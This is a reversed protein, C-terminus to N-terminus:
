QANCTGREIHGSGAIVTMASQSPHPELGDPASYESEDLQSVPGLNWRDSPGPSPYCIRCTAVFRPHRDFDPSDDDCETGTCTMQGGLHVVIRGYCAEAESEVTQPDASVLGAKLASFREPVFGVRVPDDAPFVSVLGSTGRLEGNGSACTDDM